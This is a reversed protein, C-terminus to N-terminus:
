INAGKINTIYGEEEGDMDDHDSDKVSYNLKKKQLCNSRM